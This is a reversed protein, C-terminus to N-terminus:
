KSYYQKLVKKTDGFMKVEGAELWLIKNTFKHLLDESHTALIMIKCQQVMAAARDEAKKIFTKDGAAIGEDQVLIDATFFTTMAFALRYAMGSSYTRVPMNLFNGLETFNEVDQVFRKYEEKSINMLTARLSINEYGTLDSHVGFSVDLIAAMRGSIDVMGKQPKYIGTLLRLLTSKGAGNHGILGVRDGEAFEISLNSFVDVYVSNREGRIRKGINTMQILNNKLSRASADLIPYSLSVNKLKIYISM